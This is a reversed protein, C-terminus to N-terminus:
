AAEGNNDSFIRDANQLLLNVVQHIHLGERDAIQRLSERDKLAIRVHTSEGVKLARPFKM